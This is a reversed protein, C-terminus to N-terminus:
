FQIVRRTITQPSMNQHRPKKKGSSFMRCAPIYRPFLFKIPIKANQKQHANIKGITTRQSEKNNTVQEQPPPPPTTSNIAFNINHPLRCKMAVVTLNLM